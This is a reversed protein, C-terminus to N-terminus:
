VKRSRTPSHSYRALSNMAAKAANYPAWGPTQGTAAGSSIFIVRGTNPSTRLAPLAVKLASVLSFFNVDFHNKWADLPVSPEGIRALPQLTGANLILGDLVPGFTDKAQSFAQAQASEDTSCPTGHRRPRPRPCASECTVRSPLSLRLITM